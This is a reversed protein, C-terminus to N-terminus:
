MTKMLKNMNSMTNGDISAPIEHIGGNNEDTTGPDEDVEGKEM